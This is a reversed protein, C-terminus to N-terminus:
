LKLYGTFANRFNINSAKNFHEKNYSIASLQYVTDELVIRICKPPLLNQDFINSM